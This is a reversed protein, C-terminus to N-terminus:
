STLTRRIPICPFARTKFKSFSHSLSFERDLPEGGVRRVINNVNATFVLGGTNNDLIFPLPCLSTTSFRRHNINDALPDSFLVPTVFWLVGCLLTPETISMIGVSVQIIDIHFIFQPASWEPFFETQEYTSSPQLQWKRRINNASGRSARHPVM